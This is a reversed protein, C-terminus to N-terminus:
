GPNIAHAHGLCQQQQHQQDRRQRGQGPQDPAQLLLPILVVVAAFWLLPTWDVAM